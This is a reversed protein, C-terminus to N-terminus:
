PKKVTASYAGMGQAESVAKALEQPTAKAPDYIVTAEKKALSVEASKVGEVRVLASRM